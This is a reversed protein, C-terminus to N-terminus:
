RVAEPKPSQIDIIHRASFRVRSGFKLGNIFLPQNALTGIYRGTTKSQSLVKVWMREGSPMGKTKNEVEFGLKVFTKPKISARDRWEPIGFSEPYLENQREGDMLSYIGTKM